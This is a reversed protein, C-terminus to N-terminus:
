GDAALEHEFRALDAEVADISAHWFAPDELDAGLCRRAVGPATDSGALRLLEEYRPLFEPGERRAREALGLSFLFGFTYPFNYFTTGAIYFHLKSAWFWPDLAAPDLADGYWERQAEGMLECLRGASLEEAAREEYVRREFAFRMPLNLLFAAGDRLRRDLVELRQGRGAEPADLAADALIQEAFTSATEALTMPYRRAFSRAGRLLWGHFAHGLEHALTSVDGPSGGFTMFIRSEGLVPSTSCFGGPRKGPRPSWDVWRGEFARAAVAALAPYRAAFAALVQARAEDFSVRAAPASALPAELDCFGLRPLGLLAAKRRLYRRAVERRAVVADMMADLTRRTIGADFLAPDLFDGIGRRRYLALRTGAIANLSAALVDANTAWAANAGALAARRVEPRADGLLSRALSAPVRRAAEGPVELDFELAGSVRGYLRSWAALGTVELDAALEELEAPMRRAAEERLRRLFHGAHALGPDALLADFAAAPAAGLAARVRAYRKALEARLRALRASERQVAEDRSDASALCHLYSGLHAADGAVDELRRLAAVWGARDDGPAGLGAIAAELAVAEAELADRFARHEPGDFAPFYSTLDWDM